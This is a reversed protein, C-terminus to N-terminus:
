KRADSYIDPFVDIYHYLFDHLIDQDIDCLQPDVSLAHTLLTIQDVTMNMRKALEIMEAHTLTPGLVIQFKQGLLIGNHNSYNIDSYDGRFIGRPGIKQNKILSLSLTLFFVKKPTTRSRGLLTDIPGQIKKLDDGAPNPLIQLKNRRGLQPALEVLGGNRLAQMAAPLFAGTGDGEKIKRGGAAYPSLKGHAIKEMTDGNAVPYFSMGLLPGVVSTIFPLQISQGMEVPAIIPANFIERCALSSCALMEVSDRLAFHNITVIGGYGLRLLEKARKIGGDEESIEAPFPYYPLRVLHFLGRMALQLINPDVFRMKATEQSM